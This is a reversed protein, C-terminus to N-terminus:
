ENEQTNLFASMAMSKLEVRGASVQEVQLYAERFETLGDVNRTSRTPGLTALDFPLDVPLVNQVTELNKSWRLQEEDDHALVIDVEATSDVFQLEASEGDKPNRQSGFDWSKSRMTALVNVGNDEFTDDDTQDDWDKWQNVFGASDGIILREVGAFRSTCFATPTWGTWVGIFAPLTYGAVEAPRRLRLNWVLTHSPETAADLPLGLLLYRGYKHLVIKSLAATNIRDFYTKAPESAPPATEFPVQEVASPVIERLALDPGVTWVSNGDFLMAYRGVCGVSGAIRQILWTSTAVQPDANVAYISGEKGVFLWQGRGSVLSRIAEGEGRGVRFANAAPWNGTGAAGLDSVYIQDNISAITGSAFMRHTHWCLITAGNPPDTAGNGLAGSWAAGSYTRWQGSGDTCFLLYAGQAMDVITNAGFPYAAITAWVTGNWQRLSANISAYLHELTTTDFYALCQVRDGVDLSSGGLGDAGPRTRPRGNDEVICNELFGGVNPALLVPTQFEDAGGSWSKQEADLTPDDIQDLFKVGM